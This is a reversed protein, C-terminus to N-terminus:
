SDLIISYGFKSKVLVNDFDEWLYCYKHVDWIKEGPDDRKEMKIMFYLLRRELLLLRLYM